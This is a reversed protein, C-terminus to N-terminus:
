WMFIWRRKELQNNQKRSTDNIGDEIFRTLNDALKSHPAYLYFFWFRGGIAVSQLHLNKNIKVNFNILVSFCFLSKTYILVCKGYLFKEKIFKYDSNLIRRLRLIFVSISTIFIWNKTKRKTRLLMISKRNIPITYCHSRTVAVYTVM